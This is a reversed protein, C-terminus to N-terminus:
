PTLGFFKIALAILSYAVFPKEFQVNDFIIPTFWSNHALMEKATEVYFVEDPHTLSVIGNGFMLLFYSCVLLIFCLMWHSRNEFSNDM